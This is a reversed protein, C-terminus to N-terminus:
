LSDFYQVMRKRMKADPLRGYAAGMNEKMHNVQSTAPIACTVAEHSVVYKLFFQPWNQCDIEGAWEPLKKGVIRHFIDGGAFPRNIIVAKGYQAAMPLLRKEAERDRMNYTFQVFDFPQEKIVKLMDDHMRGHSTSIGIYRVRGQERWKQLTELHTEWDLMNHVLILDFKKIGWLNFSAEMQQRGLWGMYTWVKTASFFANKNKTRKLCYGIVDESSGYMPSSDVMGGGANFFTQMVRVRIDRQFTDDAVNFTIWSGMGLVPIEQGSSPIPKKHIPSPAALAPALGYRGALGLASAAVLFRRRNLDWKSYTM